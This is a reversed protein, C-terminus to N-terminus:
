VTWMEMAEAAEALEIRTPFRNEHLRLSADHAENSSSFSRGQRHHHPLDITGLATSLV